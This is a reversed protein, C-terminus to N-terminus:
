IGRIKDAEAALVIPKEDVAHRRTDLFRMVGGMRASVMAERLEKKFGMVKNATGNDSIFGGARPMWVMKYATFQGGTWIRQLIKWQIMGSAYGMEVGVSAVRDVDLRWELRDVRGTTQWAGMRVIEDNEVWHPDDSVAIGITGWTGDLLEAKLMGITVNLM